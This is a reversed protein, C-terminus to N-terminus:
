HLVPSGPASSKLPVSELITLVHTGNSWSFDESFIPVCWVPVSSVKGIHAKKSAVYWKSTVVAEPATPALFHM